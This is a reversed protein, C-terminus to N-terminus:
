IYNFKLSKLPTKFILKLAGKKIEKADGFKKQGARNSARHLPSKLPLITLKIQADLIISPATFNKISLHFKGCNM